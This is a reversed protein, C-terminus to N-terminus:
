IMAFLQSRNLSINLSGFATHSVIVRKDPRRNCSPHDFVPTLKGVPLDFEHHSAKRRRILRATRLHTRTLPSRSKKTFHSAPSAEWWFIFGAAILFHPLEM